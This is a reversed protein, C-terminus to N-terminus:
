DAVFEYRWRSGARRIRGATPAPFHAPLVLTGAEAHTEMFQQRCSASLVPDECFAASWEPYMVQIPHHMVDGSLVAADGRSRLHILVNGPSHGEAPELRVHDDLAFDSDVLVAQGSQVVPLVSDAFMGMGAAPDAAHARERHQYERRAFVYRANPFTPVWRGNELRTNWGVHDSHMHTCMVYDVQDPSVGTARLNDLWGTRLQHFSALGPRQKDNGVCTDVIITHRPTRVLYSHFALFGLGEELRAFRPELWGREAALAEPTSKPLIDALRMAISETELITDIALDGVAQRKM